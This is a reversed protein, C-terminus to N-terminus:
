KDAWTSVVSLLTQFNKVGSQKVCVECFESIAARDCVELSDYYSKVISFGEPKPKEQKNSSPKMGTVSEKVADKGQKIVKAQEKKDPQAAVFKAALSVPLEGSEVAQLVEKSGGDIVQKATTVSRPSVKLMNAAQEISPACIQTGDNERQSKVHGVKLTALKGAVVARQSENLHRRHLNISLVYSVPDADDDLEDTYPEINLENCARLRNRGDVLMGRWMTISERQGNKDIDDRLGQYEQETMMPFADAIPHIDFQMKAPM